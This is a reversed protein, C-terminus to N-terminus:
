TLQSLWFVLQRAVAQCLWGPHKKWVYGGTRCLQVSQYLYFLMKDNLLLLMCCEKCWHKVQMMAHRCICCCHCTVQSMHLDLWLLAGSFSWSHVHLLLFGLLWWRRKKKRCDSSVCGESPSGPLWGPSWIHATGPHHCVAEDQSGASSQRCSPVLDQQKRAWLNTIEKQMTWTKAIASHSVMLCLGVQGQMPANYIVENTEPEQNSWNSQMCVGFIPKVSLQWSCDMLSMSCLPASVHATYLCSTYFMWAAWLSGPVPFGM